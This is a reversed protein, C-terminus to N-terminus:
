HRLPEWAGSIHVPWRWPVVLMADFRRAYAAYRSHRSLFAAAARELRAQQRQTIAESGQVLTRRAKVEIFLLIKGRTAIIDIEGLRSRYRSAVIRHGRLRLSLRCLAEAWLGKGYATPRVRM